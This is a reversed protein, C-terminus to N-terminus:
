REEFFPLAFRCNAQNERFFAGFSDLCVAQSRRVKLREPRRL